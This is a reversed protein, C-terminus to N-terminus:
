RSRSSFPVAIFQQFHIVESIGRKSSSSGGDDTSLKGSVLSLASLHNGHGANTTGAGFTSGDLSAGNVIDFNQQLDM